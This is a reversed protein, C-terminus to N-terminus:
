GNWDRSQICSEIFYNRLETYYILNSVTKNCIKEWSSMWERAYFAEYVLLTDLRKRLTAMAMGLEVMAHYQVTNCQTKDYNNYGVASCQITIYQTSIYQVNCHITKCQIAICRITECHIIICRITECHITSCLTKCQISNCHITNQM